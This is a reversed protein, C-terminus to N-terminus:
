QLRKNMASGNTGKQSFHSNSAGRSNSSVNGINGNIGPEKFVVSNIHWRMHLLMNSYNVSERLMSKFERAYAIRTTTRGDITKGKIRRLFEDAAAETKLRAQVIARKPNNLDHKNFHRAVEYTTVLRQKVGTKQAIVLMHKNFLEALGEFVCPEQLHGTNKLEYLSLKNYAAKAKNEEVIDAISIKCLYCDSEKVQKNRCTPDYPIPEPMIGTLGRKSAIAKEMMEDLKAREEPDEEIDEGTLRRMEAFDISDYMVTKNFRDENDPMDVCPEGKSDVYVRSFAAPPPVAPESSECDMDSGDFEDDDDDDDFGDGPRFLREATGASNTGPRRGSYREYIDAPINGFAVPDDKVQTTKEEQGTTHMEAAASTKSKTNKM